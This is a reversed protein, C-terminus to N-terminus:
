SCDKFRFYKMMCKDLNDTHKYATSFYLFIRYKIHFIVIKNFTLEKSVIM